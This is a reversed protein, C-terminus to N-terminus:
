LPQYNIVKEIFYILSCYGPIAALISWYWHACSGMVRHMCKKYWSIIVEITRQATRTLIYNWFRIIKQTQPTFTVIFRPVGSKNCHTCMCTCHRPNVETVSSRFERNQTTCTHIVKPRSITLVHVYNSQLLEYSWLAEPVWTVEHSWMVELAHSQSIVHSQSAM